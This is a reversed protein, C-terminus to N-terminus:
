VPPHILAVLQAMVVIIGVYYSLGNNLEGLEFFPWRNTQNYMNSPLSFVFISNYLHTPNHKLRVGSDKNYYLTPVLHNELVQLTLSIICKAM